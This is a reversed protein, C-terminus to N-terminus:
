RTTVVKRGNTWVVRWKRGDEHDILIESGENGSVNLFAFDDPTVGSRIFWAKWPHAGDAVYVKPHGAGAILVCDIYQQYVGDHTAAVRHGVTIAPGSPNEVRVNKFFPNGGLENLKASAAQMIGNGLLLGNEWQIGNQYAGAEIGNTRNNYAVFNATYHPDTLNTWFRLGSGENNHAVNGVEFTWHRPSDTIPNIWDYGAAYSDWGRVGAVTSNRIEMNVGEPLVVGAKNSWDRDLVEWPLAVGLVLLGDVVIDNTTDGNDWWLVSSWSNVAVNDIFTVGHSGHPIFVKGRSDVAAVGRVVTGRAGEGSMHLHLAYRGSIAPDDNPSTFFKRHAIGLSQLRVYEIRQPRSSNVHVHGPGQIVCDRTVNAVEASPTRPDMRPIAQGPSWRRPTFDGAATPAIWYEDTSNWSPDSGSRNWSRKPTCQIDLQGTGWVWVGRDDNFPGSDYNMGGGVYRDPTAGVIMLTSGPRMGMVADKVLVNGAVAVGKGILWRKGSPIILNGVILTDEILADWGAPVTDPPLVIVTDGAPPTPVTDPPPAVVTDPPPATTTDPPPATTTDPPASTTDPPATTDPPQTPLCKPNTPSKCARLSDRKAERLNSDHLLQTLARRQEPTLINFTDPATPEQGVCGLPTALLLAAPLLWYLPSLRM